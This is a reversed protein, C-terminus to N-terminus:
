GRPESADSVRLGPLHTVLEVVAESLAIRSVRLAALAVTTDNLREAPGDFCRQVLMYGLELDAQYSIARAAASAEYADRGMGVAQSGQGPFVFALATVIVFAYCHGIGGDLM